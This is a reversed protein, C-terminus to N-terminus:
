IRADLGEPSPLVGGRANDDQMLHRALTNPLGELALELFLEFGREGDVPFVQQVPQFAPCDGEEGVRGVHERFETKVAGSFTLKPILEGQETEKEITPVCIPPVLPPSPNGTKERGRDAVVHAVSGRVRGRVGEAMNELVRLGTEGGFIADLV